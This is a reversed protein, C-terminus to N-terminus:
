NPKIKKMNNHLPNNNVISKSNSNPKLHKDSHSENANTM